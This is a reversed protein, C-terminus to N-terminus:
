KNGNVVNVYINGFINISTANDRKQKRKRKEYIWVVVIVFICVIAWILVTQYEVDWIGRIKLMIECINLILSILQIINVM